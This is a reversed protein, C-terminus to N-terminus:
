CLDDFALTASGNRTKVEYTTGSVLSPVTLFIHHDGNLVLVPNTAQMAFKNIATVPTGNVTWQTLDATSVEAANWTTSTFYVEIVTNSATRVEQLTLAANVTLPYCLIVAALLLRRM